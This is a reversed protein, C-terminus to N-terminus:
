LNTQNTRHVRLLANTMKSIQQILDQAVDFDVASIYKLDLAIQLQNDLETLSGYSMVYFHERDKATKRAFGEAINSTVSVSARRMQNTLGFREENPFDRSLKYILLVLEHGRQWVILDRFSTITKVM